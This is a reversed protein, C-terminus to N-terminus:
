TPRSGRRQPNPLCVGKGRSLGKGRPVAGGPDHEPCGLADPPCARSRRWGRWPSPAPVQKAGLEGAGNRPIAPLATSPQHHGSGMAPNEDRADGDLFAELGPSALAAARRRRHGRARGAGVVAAASTPRSVLCAGAVVRRPVRETPEAPLPPGLGARSRPAAPTTGTRTIPFGLGFVM